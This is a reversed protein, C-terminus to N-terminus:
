FPPRELLFLRKRAQRNRRSISDGPRVPDTTSTSKQIIACALDLLLASDPLGIEVTVDAAAVLEAPLWRSPQPSVGHVPRGDQLAADLGDAVNRSTRADHARIIVASSRQQGSAIKLRSRTAEAIPDPQNRLRNIAEVKHSWAEVCLHHWPAPTHVIVVFGSRGAVRQVDPQNELARLLMLRAMVAAPDEARTNRDPDSLAPDDENSFDQDREM